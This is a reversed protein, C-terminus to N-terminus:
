HEGVLVSNAPKLTSGRVTINRGDETRVRVSHRNGVVHAVTAATGDQLLVAQGNSFVPAIASNPAPGGAHRKVIPLGTDHDFGSIPGLDHHPILGATIDLGDQQRLM